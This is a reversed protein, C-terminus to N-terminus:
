PSMNDFFLLSRRDELTEPLRGPGKLIGKARSSARSANKCIGVSACSRGPLGFIAALLRLVLFRLSFLPERQSAEAIM